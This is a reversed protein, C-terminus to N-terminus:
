VLGVARMRCGGCRLRGTSDGMHTMGPISLLETECGADHLGRYFQEAEAIPCRDDAQGHLMLTPTRCHMAYTLPSRSRYIDPIEDPRGGLENSFIDPADCLYYLSAFNTVASEAVAARFRTTHGVIWCTRLAEHSAGWVGWDRPM